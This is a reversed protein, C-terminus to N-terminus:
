MYRADIAKTGTTHKEEVYQLGREREREREVHVIKLKGHRKEERREKGAKRGLKMAIKRVPIISRVATHRSLEHLVQFGASLM